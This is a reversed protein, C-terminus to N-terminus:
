ITQDPLVRKLFERSTWSNLDIYASVAIAEGNPDKGGYGVGSAVGVLKGDVFMPGGSDGQGASVQTGPQLGKASARSVGSFYLLNGDSNDIVNRGSRLTLAGSAKLLEGSPGYTFDNNGYGVITFETGVEPSLGLESVAPATGEPFRVIALDNYGTGVQIDYGPYQTVAEAIAAIYKQNQEDHRVYYLPGNDRNEPIKM